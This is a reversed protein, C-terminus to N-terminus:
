VLIFYFSIYIFSPLSVNNQIKLFAYNTNNCLFIQKYILEEISIHLVPKLFYFFIDTASMSILYFLSVCEDVVWKERERWM